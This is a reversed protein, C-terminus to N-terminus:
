HLKLAIVIGYSVFGIAGGILGVQWTKRNGFSTALQKKNGSM